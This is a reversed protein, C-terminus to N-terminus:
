PQYPVKVMRNGAFSGLYLHDGVQQAVTVVGLPQGGAHRFVSETQLSDPDIRVIEFDGGCNVDKLSDEQCLVAEISSLPMSGVLINGAADWRLNDPHKVAVEAVKEGRERDIKIVRSGTSAAMYIYKGAKDVLVGNPFGDRSAEIVKFAGAGDNRHWEMAYGSSRGLASLAVALATSSLRPSSKPFMHTVVFGGNPTAAVSNIYSDDPAVVCGRWYASYGSSSPRLEVFEVRESEAHNVVLLQQRGDDRLSLDIGHPSFIDGPAGPCESSGWSPLDNAQLVPLRETDGSQTDYLAIHGPNALLYNGYESIVLTKGDPLLAMDEPNTFGCIPEMNGVPECVDDAITQSDGCATFLPLALVLWFFRLQPM